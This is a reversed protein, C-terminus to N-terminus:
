NKQKFKKFYAESFERCEKMTSCVAQAEAESEVAKELDVVAGQYILPKVLKIFEVPTKSLAEALERAASELNEPAAVKNVLGIREAEQADIMKGTLMFEFARSPGLIRPLFYTVGCDPVAALNVHADSFKAEESAVIVDSALALSLGGGIAFGNVASVIPKPLRKLRVFIQGAELVGTKTDESNGSGRGKFFRSNLDYGSCFARGAGTIIIAKTEDDQELYDFTKSLEDYLEGNIANMQKVRNLTITAISNEKKLLILEERV